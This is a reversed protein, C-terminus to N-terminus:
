QPTAMAKLAARVDDPLSLIRGVRESVEAGGRPTVQMHFRAADALLDPDAVAQEFAARLAAVREEPVEPAVAFPKGIQSPTAMAMIMGQERPTPAYAAAPVADKLWPHSPVMDGLVVLVRATPPDSEFWPRATVSMSEWTWCAGDTEKRDVALRSPGTGGYGTVLRLNLGLAANLTNPTDYSTSGPSDTAITVEVGDLLDQFSTAPSDTRFACVSPSDNMSGLWQYRRADFEIGPRDLLQLLISNENFSGIITGDKPLEKYVANAIKLSGNGPHNEVVVNPQGPVYKGLHRALLRSYTDFGGGPTYGVMIRITNGRYFRAVRAEPTDAAGGVSTGTAPGCAATALVTAVLGGLAAVSFRRQM